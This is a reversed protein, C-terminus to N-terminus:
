FNNHMSILSNHAVKNSCLKRICATIHVNAGGPQRWVEARLYVFRRLGSLLLYVFRGVVMDFPAHSDDCLGRARRYIGVVDHRRFYCTEVRSYQCSQGYRCRDFMTWPDSPLMYKRNYTILAFVTSNNDCGICETEFTCWTWQISAHDRWFFLAM